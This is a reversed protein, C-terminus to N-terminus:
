PPAHDRNPAPASFIRNVSTPALSKDKAGATAARLVIGFFVVFLPLCCHVRNEDAGEDGCRTEDQTNEAREVQALSVYVLEHLLQVFADDFLPIPEGVFNIVLYIAQARFHIHLKFADILSQGGKVLTKGSDLVNKEFWGQWALSFTQGVQCDPGSLNQVSGCAPEKL